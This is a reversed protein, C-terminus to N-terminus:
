AGRLSPWRSVASSFRRLPGTGPRQTPVRRASSLGPCRASCRPYMRMLAPASVMPVLRWTEFGRAEGQSAYEIFAREVVEPHFGPDVLEEAASPRGRLSLARVDPRAGQTRPQGGM